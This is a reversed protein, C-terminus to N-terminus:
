GRVQRVRGALALAALAMTLVGYYLWVPAPRPMTVGTYDLWPLRQMPGMYWLFLFLVEFLKGGATWVGCCLALAPVFAAGGLWVFLREFASSVIM